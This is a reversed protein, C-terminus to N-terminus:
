NFLLKIIQISRYGVRAEYIGDPLAASAVAIPNGDEDTGISLVPTTMDGLRVTMGVEVSAAKEADDFRLTLVGSRVEAEGAAYSEVATVSSWIFLGILLLVVAALVAWIAPSTVHLYDQLAEPSSVREMSEKRFLQQNM